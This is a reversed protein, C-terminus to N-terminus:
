FGELVSTVVSAAFDQAIRGLAPNLESFFNKVDVNIVYQERFVHGDNKYLVRGTEREAMRVRSSLTVLFTSGFTQAGFLVPSVSVRSVVGELVADAQSPDNVVRYDSREVFARILSQTLIQEVEFVKTENELPVIVVSQIQPSLRNKSAVRYGCGMSTVLLLVVAPGLLTLHRGIGRRPPKFPPLGRLKKVM